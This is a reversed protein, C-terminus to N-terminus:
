RSHKASSWHLCTSPRQQGTSEATFLVGHVILFDRTFANGVLDVLRPNRPASTFAQALWKGERRLLQIVRSVEDPWYSKLKYFM